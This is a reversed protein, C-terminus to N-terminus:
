EKNLELAAKGAPSIHSVMVVPEYKIDKKPVIYEEKKIEVNEDVKKIKNQNNNESNDSQSNNTIIKKDNNTNNLSAADISQINTLNGNAETNSNTSSAGFNVSLGSSNASL